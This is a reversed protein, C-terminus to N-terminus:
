KEATKLEAMKEDTMTATKSMGNIIEFTMVLAISPDLAMKTEILIECISNIAIQLTKENNELNINKDIFKRTEHGVQLPLFSPKNDEPISLNLSGWETKGINEAYKEFIGTLSPFSSTDYHSDIKSKIKSFVCEKPLEKWNEVAIQGVLLENIKESFVASGPEFEHDNISFENTFVICREAIITSILCIADEVRVEKEAQISNYVFNVLKKTLKEDTPKSRLFDLFGM